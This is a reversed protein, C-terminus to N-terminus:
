SIRMALRSAQIPTTLVTLPSKANSSHPYPTVQPQPKTLPSEWRPYTPQQYLVQGLGAAFARRKVGVSDVSIAELYRREVWGEAGLLRV